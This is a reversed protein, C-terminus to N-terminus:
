FPIDDDAGPGPGRPPPGDDRRGSPKSDSRGRSEGRGDGDGKGDGLFKVEQAVCETFYRKVGEKDDYTRTQKRGEVYVQRGKALYKACVEALPGWAVINTWEVREQKEGSKDKWVENTAITFTCVPQGSPIHKLEPDAGLHGILIMKNVSSM